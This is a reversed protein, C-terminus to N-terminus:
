ACRWTRLEAVDGVAECREFFWEGGLLDALSAAIDSNLM